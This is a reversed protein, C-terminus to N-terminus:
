SDKALESRSQVHVSPVLNMLHKGLKQSPLEIIKHLIASSIIATVVAILLAILPRFGIDLLIDLLIYGAIGHIVYLPYSIDALFNVIKNGKFLAQNAFAYSFVLFAFGYSWANRFEDKYIGLYTVLCFLLFFLAMLYIMQEPNIIKRFSYNFVTGIFMFIIYPSSFVYVSSINFLIGGVHTLEEVKANLYLSSLGLFVPIFFVKLSASRFLHIAAACIIYFKIEIELTWIVGDINKSRLLDHLGPMYHVLIEQTHLMFPRNFYIGCFWIALVTISFGVFYTPFIRFFRNIVFGKWTTKKLSFPIVFGSILFFLAVGFAGWDFLAIKHLLTVINPTQHLLSLEPANAFTSVVNRALWFVGFYHSILVSLAAFGRLTNAFEVKNLTMENKM